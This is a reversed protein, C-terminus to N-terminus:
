KIINGHQAELECWHEWKDHVEEVPTGTRDAEDYMDFLKQLHGNDKVEIKFEPAITKNPEPENPVEGSTDMICLFARTDGKLAKQIQRDILAVKLTVDGPDLESYRNLIDKKIDATPELNLLEKVLERFKKKEQRVEASKLGDKELM